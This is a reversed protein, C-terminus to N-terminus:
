HVGGCCVCKRPNNKLDQQYRINLFVNKLNDSLLLGGGWPFGTAVYRQPGGINNRVTFTGIRM